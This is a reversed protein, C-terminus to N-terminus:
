LGRGPCSNTARAYRCCNQWSSSRCELSAPRRLNTQGMSAACLGPSLALSRSHIRSLPRSPSCPPSLSLSLSLAIRESLDQIKTLTRSLTVSLPLSLPLPHPHPSLLYHPFPLLSASLHASCLPSHASSDFVEGM